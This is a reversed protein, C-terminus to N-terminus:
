TGNPIALRGSKGTVPAARVGFFGSFRAANSVVTSSTVAPQITARCPSQSCTVLAAMKSDTARLRQLYGKQAANNVHSKM